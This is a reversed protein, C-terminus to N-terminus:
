RTDISVDLRAVGAAATAATTPASTSDAHVDDEGAGAAADAAWADTDISAAAEGPLVTAGMGVTLGAAALGAAELGAAETDAGADGAVDGGVLRGLAM